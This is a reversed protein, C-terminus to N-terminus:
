SKSAKDSESKKPRAKSAKRAKSPKDAQDVERAEEPKAEEETFKASLALHRMVKERVIQFTAENVFEEHGLLEKFQEPQIGEQQMMMLAYRQFDEATANLSQEKAIARIALFMKIKRISPEKLTERYEPLSQGKDKLYAELNTGYRHMRDNNDKVLGDLELALMDDSIEVELEDLLKQAALEQKLQLVQQDREHELNTQIFTEFEELSDLRFHEKVFTEDLKPEEVTHVSTITALVALEKGAVRPDAFNEPLTNDFEVKTDREQGIFQEDWGPLNGELGIVLLMEDHEFPAAEGSDKYRTKFMFKVADGTEVAGEKDPYNTFREILRSKYREKMMESVPLSPVTLEFASYDPLKVEPLVPISVEIEAPQGEVPEPLTHWDTNGARSELGLQHLAERVAYDKLIDTAADNLAEVGIRQRIVNAPIKGKRFGPISTGRSYERYLLKYQQGVEKASISVKVRAINKDRSVLKATPM